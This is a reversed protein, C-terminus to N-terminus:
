VAGYCDIGGEYHLGALSTSPTDSVREHGREALEVLRTERSSSDTCVAEENRRASDLGVGYGVVDRFWVVHTTGQSFSVSHQSCWPGDKRSSVLSCSFSKGTFSLSFSRESRMSARQRLGRASWSNVVSLREEPRRGRRTVGVKGKRLNARTECYDKGGGLGTESPNTGSGDTEIVHIETATSWVEGVVCLVRQSVSKFSPSTECLTM